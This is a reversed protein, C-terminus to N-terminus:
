NQEIPECWYSLYAAPISVLDSNAKCLPVGLHTLKFLGQRESRVKTAETFFRIEWTKMEITSASV